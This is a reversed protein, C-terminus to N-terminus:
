LLKYDSFLQFINRLIFLSIQFNYTKSKNLILQSFTSPFQMLNIFDFMPLYLHFLVNSKKTFYKLTGHEM